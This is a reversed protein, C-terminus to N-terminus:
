KRAIVQEKLFLILHILVRKNLPPLKMLMFRVFEPEKGEQIEKTQMIENYIEYSIIPVILKTFFKKAVGAIAYGSYEDINKLPMVSGM